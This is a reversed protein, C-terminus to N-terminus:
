GGEGLRIQNKLLDADRYGGIGAHLNRFELIAHYFFVDVLNAEKDDDYEEGIFTVIGNEDVMVM